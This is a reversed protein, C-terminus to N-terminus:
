IQRLAAGNWLLLSGSCGSQGLDPSWLATSGGTGMGFVSTFRQLALPLKVFPRALTPRQWTIYLGSMSVHGPKKRKAALWKGGDM